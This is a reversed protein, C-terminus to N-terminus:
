KVQSPSIWHNFLDYFIALIVPGIFIGILGHVLVGGIVGTFIVITPTRLGRALIFPKLFNDMLAVAILPITFLITAILSKTFFLWIIVPIVILFLGVQIIGMILALFSLISAGPTGAVLLILGLLIAQILSLGIVGRSVNQITEKLISVLTMGRAPSIREAFKRIDATLIRSNALLYGSFLIAIMFLIISFTISATRSLLFKGASVLYSSYQGVLSGLNSSATAWSDHLSAGIFPWDRIFDPPQPVIPENSRLKSTLYEVTDLLNNTLLVLSAVLVLLSLATLFTAAIVSHGHFRKCLWAYIPYLAVALIFGWALVGFLPYILWFSWYALAAVLTLRILQDVTLVNHDQM